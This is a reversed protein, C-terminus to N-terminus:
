IILSISSQINIIRQNNNNISININIISDTDIIYKIKSWEIIVIGTDLMSELEEKNLYKNYEEKNSRYMDIHFLMIDTNSIKYEKIFIFTPSIINHIDFTQAIGKTLTTKGAGISGNLLILYGQKLQKGLQLGLQIIEKASNCLRKYLYKNQKNNNSNNM